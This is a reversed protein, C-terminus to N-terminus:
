LINLLVTLYEDRIQDLVFLKFSAVEWGLPLQGTETIALYLSIHGYGSKEIGKPYLSLRRIADCIDLM